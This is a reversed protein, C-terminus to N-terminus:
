KVELFNMANYSEGRWSRATGTVDTWPNDLSSSSIGTHQVLTPNHVYEYFGVSNMAEVVAGDIKRHGTDTNIPKMVINPASLIHLLAERSFVLALAGLGRQVSSAYHSLETQHWTGIPKGQIKSDNTDYTFLNWYGKSPYECKELYQRLNKYVLIDDQFMVFRHAAPNRIYLEWMGLIWNGFARVPPNHVTEPFGTLGVEGDVFIRPEEFGGAKISQITKTLLTTLRSPVTTIGYAWRM